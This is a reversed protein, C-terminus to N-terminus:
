WSKQNNNNIWETLGETVRGPKGTATITFGNTIAPNQTTDVTYDIEYNFNLGQPDGPQFQPLGGLAPTQSPYGDRISADTANYFFSGNATAEQPAYEGNEAYYQEELLRLNQLNAYAESEAAKRRQGIYLPYSIGALIALISITILLEILTFGEEKRRM